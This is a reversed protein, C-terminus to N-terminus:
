PCCVCAARRDGCGVLIQGPWIRGDSHLDEGFRYVHVWVSLYYRGPPPDAVEDWKVTAGSHPPILVCRLSSKYSYNEWPRASPSPSLFWWLCVDSREFATNVLDVTVLLRGELIRPQEVRLTWIRVPGISASSFGLGPLFIRSFIEGLAVCTTVFLLGLSSGSDRLNHSVRRLFLVFRVMSHYLM